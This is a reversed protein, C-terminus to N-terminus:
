RGHAWKNLRPSFHLKWQWWPGTDEQRVTGDRSGLLIYTCFRWPTIPALAEWLLTSCCKRKQCLTRIYHDMVETYQHARAWVRAVDHESFWRGIQGSSCILVGRPWLKVKKKQVVPRENQMTVTAPKKQRWVEPGQNGDKQNGKRYKTRRWLFLLWQFLGAKRQLWLSESPRCRSEPQVPLNDVALSLPPVFNCYSHSGPNTLHTFLARLTM